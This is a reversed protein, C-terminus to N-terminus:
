SDESEKYSNIFGNLDKKVDNLKQDNNHKNSQDSDDNWYITRDKHENINNTNVNTKKSGDKNLLQGSNGNWYISGDKHENMSNSSVVKAPKIDM